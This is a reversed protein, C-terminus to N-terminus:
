VNVRVFGRAIEEAGEYLTMPARYYTPEQHDPEDFILQGQLHAFWCCRKRLTPMWVNSEERTYWAVVVTTSNKQAWRDLAPLEAALQGTTELAPEELIVVGGTPPLAGSMPLTVEGSFLECLASTVPWPKMYTEAMVLHVRGRPLNALMRLIHVPLGEPEPPSSAPSYNAMLASPAVILRSVAERRNM